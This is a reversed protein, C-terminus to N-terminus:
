HNNIDNKSLLSVASSSEASVVGLWEPEEM